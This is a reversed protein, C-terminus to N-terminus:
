YKKRKQKNPLLTIAGAKVLQLMEQQIRKRDNNCEEHSKELADIRARFQTTIETHKVNDSDMFRKAIIWLVWGVIGSSGFQSLATFLKEDM